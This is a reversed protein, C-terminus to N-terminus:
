LIDLFKRRQEKTEHEVTQTVRTIILGFDELSKVTKTIDKMEENIIILIILITMGSSLIKKHSGVDDASAPATLGLLILVSKALSKIILLLDVKM